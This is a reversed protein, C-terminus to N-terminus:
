PRVKRPDLFFGAVDVDDLASVSRVRYSCGIRRPATARRRLKSRVLTQAEAMNSVPVVRLSLRRGTRGHRIEVALEGFLNEVVDLEYVRHRDRAEHHAELRLAFLM